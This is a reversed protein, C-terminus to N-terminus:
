CAIKNISSYKFYLCLFCDVELLVICTINVGGRKAGGGERGGM